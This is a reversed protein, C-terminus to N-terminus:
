HIKTSFSMINDISSNQHYWTHQLTRSKTLNKKSFNLSRWILNRTSSSCLNSFIFLYSIGTKNWCVKLLENSYLTYIDMWFKRNQLVLWRCSFLSVYSFIAIPNRNAFSLSNVIKERHSGDVWSFCIAPRDTPLWKGNYFKEADNCSHRPLRM